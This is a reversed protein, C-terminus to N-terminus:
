NFDRPNQDYRHNIPIPYTENFEDFSAIRELSQRLKRASLLPMDRPVSIRDRLYRLGIGCCNDPINIENSIMFTLASRLAIDFAGNDIPNINIIKEKHKIVRMLAFRSYYEYDIERNLELNDLGM